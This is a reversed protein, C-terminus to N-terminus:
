RLPHLNKNLCYSLGAKDTTLVVKGPTAKSLYMKKLRITLKM